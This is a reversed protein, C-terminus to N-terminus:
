TLGSIIFYGAATNADLAKISVRTAIPIYLPIWGAFGPSLYIQDVESGAGGLALIIFRGSTDSVYISTVAAATSAIIQTYAATTVVGSHNYSVPAIGRSRGGEVTRLTDAGVAGANADNNITAAITLEGDANVVAVKQRLIQFGDNTAPAESLEEALGIEDTDVSAVRVEITDLNGSTFSIIDGVLAAHGTAVIATTTSDAEVLDTGIVQATNHSVVDLAFQQERVPAVTAFNAAGGDRKKRDPYGKVTM